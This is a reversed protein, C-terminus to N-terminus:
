REEPGGALEGSGLPQPVPPEGPKSIFPSIDPCNPLDEESTDVPRIQSLNSYVDQRPVGPSSVQAPFPLEEGEGPRARTLLRLFSTLGQRYHNQRLFAGMLLLQVVLFLLLLARQRAMRPFSIPTVEWKACGKSNGRM